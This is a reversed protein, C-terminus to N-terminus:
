GSIHHLWYSKRIFCEIDSLLVHSSYIKNDSFISFLFLKSLFSFYSFLNFCYYMFHFRNICLFWEILVLNFVILISFMLSDYVKKTIRHTISCNPIFCNYNLCHIVMNALRNIKFIEIHKWIDCLAILSRIWLPTPKQFHLLHNQQMQKIHLYTHISLDGNGLTLDM